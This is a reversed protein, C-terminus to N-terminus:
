YAEMLLLAGAQCSHVCVSLLLRDSSVRSLEALRRYNQQPVVFICLSGCWSAASARSPTMTM